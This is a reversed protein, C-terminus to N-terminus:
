YYYYFMKPYLSEFCFFVFFGFCLSNCKVKNQNTHEIKQAQLKYYHLGEDM